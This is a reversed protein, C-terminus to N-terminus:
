TTHKANHMTALISGCQHRQKNVVLCPMYRHNHISVQFSESLSNSAIAYPPDIKTDKQASMNRLIRNDKAFMSNAEIDHWVEHM